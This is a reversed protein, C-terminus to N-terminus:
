RRMEADARAAAPVWSTSLGTLSGTPYTISVAISDTRPTALITARSSDLGARTLYQAAAVSAQSSADGLTALSGARAGERSANVVIQETFFYYGWDITGMVLLLLLPLVLAFEVASAGQQNRAQRHRARM